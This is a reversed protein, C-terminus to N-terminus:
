EQPVRQLICFDVLVYHSLLQPTTGVSSYIEAFIVVLLKCYLYDISALQSIDIAKLGLLHSNEFRQDVLVDDFQM